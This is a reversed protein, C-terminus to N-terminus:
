THLSEITYDTDTNNVGNDTKITISYTFTGNNSIYSM